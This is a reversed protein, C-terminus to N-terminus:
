QRSSLKSGILKFSDNVWAYQQEYWRMDQSNLAKAVVRRHEADAVPSTMKCSEPHVSLCKGATDYTLMYGVDQATSTTFFNVFLDTYGDFNFDCYDVRFDISNFRQLYLRSGTTAVWANNVWNYACCVCATDSVSYLVIAGTDYGNFVHGARLYYVRSNEEGEFAYFYSVTTDAGRFINKLFVQTATVPDMEYLEKLSISDSPPAATPQKYPVDKCAAILFALLFLTLRM